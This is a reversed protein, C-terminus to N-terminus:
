RIHFFKYQSFLELFIVTIQRIFSGCVTFGLFNSYKVNFKVINITFKGMNRGFNRILYVIIKQTKMTQSPKVLFYPLM